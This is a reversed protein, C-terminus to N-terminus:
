SRHVPMPLLGQRPHPQRQSRGANKEDYMCSLSPRRTQPAKLTVPLLMGSGIEPYVIQLMVPLMAHRGTLMNGGHGSMAVFTAFGDVKV